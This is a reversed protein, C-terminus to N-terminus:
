RKRMRKKRGCALLGQGAKGGVDAAVRGHGNDDGAGVREVVEPLVDLLYTPLQKATSLPQCMNISSPQCVVIM